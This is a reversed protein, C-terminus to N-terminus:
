GIGSIRQWGISFVTKTTTYIIIICTKIRFFLYLLQILCPLRPPQSCLFFRCILLISFGTAHFQWQEDQQGHQQRLEHIHLRHHQHQQLLRLLHLRLLIWPTTPAQAAGPGERGLRAGARHRGQRQPLLGLLLPLLCFASTTDGARHSYRRGLCDICKRLGETMDGMGSGVCRRCYV